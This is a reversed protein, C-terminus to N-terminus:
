LDELIFSVADKNSFRFLMRDLHALKFGLKSCARRLAEEVSLYIKKNRQVRAVKVNFQFHNQFIGIIRSDLAIVDHSLGIDIMFDSVSKMGFLPNRKLLQNRIIERPRDHSLDNLLVFKGMFIVTRITLLEAIRGAQKNHFRTAKYVKLTETIHQVPDVNPSLLIKLKLKARFDQYDAPNDRLNDLKSANGMVCYQEVITQWLEEKTLSSYLALKPVSVKNGLYQNIKAIASIDSDSLITRSTISDFHM